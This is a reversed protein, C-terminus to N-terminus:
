ATVDLLAGLMDNEAKIVKMSALAANKNQNLEVLSRAADLNSPENVNNARAIDSANQQMKARAQQIGQLANGQISNVM